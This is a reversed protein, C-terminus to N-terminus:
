KHPFEGSTAEDGLAGDVAAKVERMRLVRSDCEILQALARIARARTPSSNHADCAGVLWKVASTRVRSLLGGHVVVRCVRDVDEPALVAMDAGRLGGCARDWMGRYHAAVSESAAGGRGGTTQEAFSRAVTFRAAHSAFDPHTDALSALFDVLLMTAADGQPDALGEVAPTSDGVLNAMWVIDSESEIGEKWLSPLISVQPPLSPYM